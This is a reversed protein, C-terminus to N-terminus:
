NFNVKSVFDSQNTAVQIVTLGLCWLLNLGSLILGAVALSRGEQTERNESIQVLAIIGFVIGLLNFPLCCCCCLLWALCGCVLSWTAFANNKKLGGRDAAIPPPVAASAPNFAAAFEPLLGAFTWDAAGDVYVPTRSEVRGQAIWERITEAGAPGYTKGDNGIIRYNM